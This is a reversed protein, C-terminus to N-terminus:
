KFREQYRMKYFDVQGNDKLQEYQYKITGELRGLALSLSKVTDIGYFNCLYEKEEDNLPQGQNPHFDPHYKLRGYKDYEVHDIDFSANVKEAIQETHQM